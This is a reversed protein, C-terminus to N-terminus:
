DHQDEKDLVWKKGNKVHNVIKYKDGYIDVAETGTFREAAYLKSGIGCDIILIYDRKIATYEQMQEATYLNTGIPLMSVGQIVESEILGYDQGDKVVVGVPEIEDLKM